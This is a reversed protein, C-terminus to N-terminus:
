QAPAPEVQDRGREKAIYLRKDALDILKTVNDTEDPFVAIGMSITPVPIGAHNDESFKFSALTERIRQAALLAQAADTKPLSIAFEEGGWRGVADTQKIHKRIIACLNVLIKDGTPHGFSDNYQKFHDIDLMILSLKQNLSQCTEAQQHLTQIFYSHNYVRTLSDLRAQEEVWAHHYTNDLALAARQAINSLLEFDSRNFANPRYSAIAIIGNVHSGKMPVGMWSLSDKPKGITVLIVGEPDAAKRLDPLFLSKQNKIVWGSLSGKMAFCIDNFYEGDDYFLQTRIEDGNQIGIFYTDANLANQLAADLLSILQKTEITSVIQKSIENVTELRNMQRKSIIKLQQITEATIVSGIIFGAHIIWNSLPIDDIIHRAFNTTYVIAILTYAPGRDSIVAASLTAIFVLTFVLYELEHGVFASLAGIGIGGIVANLWTYLLKDPFTNYVWYYFGIYACGGIGYAFLISKFILNSEPYTLLAAVVILLLNIMGAILAPFISVINEQPDYGFRNSDKNM